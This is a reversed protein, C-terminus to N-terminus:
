DYIARLLKILGDLRGFLLGGRASGVFACARFFPLRPSLFEQPIFAVKDSSRLRRTSACARAFALTSGRRTRKKKNGPARSSEMVRASSCQTNYIGESRSRAPLEPSIHAYASYAHFSDAPICHLNQSYRASSYNSVTCILM